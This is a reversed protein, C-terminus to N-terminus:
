RYSQIEFHVSLTVIFGTIAIAPLFRSFYQIGTMLNYVFASAKPVSVPVDGTFAIVFCIILGIGLFVSLIGIIKKM